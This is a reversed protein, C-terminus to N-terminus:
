KKGLKEWKFLLNFFLIIIVDRYTKCFNDFFINQFFDRKNLVNVNAQHFIKPLSYKQVHFADNRVYLKTIFLVALLQFM